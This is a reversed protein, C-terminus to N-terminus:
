QPGGTITVLEILRVTQFEEAILFTAAVATGPILIARVDARSGPLRPAELAHPDAALEAIWGLVLGRVEPSQESALWDLLVRDGSLQYSM